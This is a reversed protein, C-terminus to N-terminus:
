GWIAAVIAAADGAYKGWDTGKSKNKAAQQHYAMSAQEQLQNALINSMNTSGQMGLGALGQEGQLGKGLMGTAQNMWQYYNQNAQQEAIQSAQQQQLPSGAMGGAAAANGAGLLAQHMAFEFGPSQHFQSGIKNLYGGPSKMMQGYINGLNGLANAGATEYPQMYGSIDGAEKNLYQDAASSPAEGSGALAGGIASGIGAANHSAYGGLRSEWSQSPADGVGGSYPVGGAGTGRSM